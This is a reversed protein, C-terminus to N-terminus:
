TENMQGLVVFGSRYKIEIVEVRIGNNVIQRFLWM